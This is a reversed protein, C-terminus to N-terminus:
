RASKADRAVKHGSVDPDVMFGGVNRVVSSDFDASNSMRFRRM